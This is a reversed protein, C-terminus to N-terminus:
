IRGNSRVFVEFRKLRAQQAEEELRLRFQVFRERARVPWSHPDAGYLDYPADPSLAEDGLPASWPESGWTFSGWITQGSEAPHGRRLYAKIKPNQSSHTPVLQYSARIKTVTNENLPGTAYARLVQEWVIPSGDADSAALPGPDLWSLNQVRGAYDAGILQPQPSTPEKHVALAACRAAVGQLRSWPKRDSSLKCVLTDVVNLGNLIPLFYHSRHVTALGPRYGLAVYEQYLPDIAASLRQFPAPAESTVGLSLQWVADVAPVILGGQWAAIGANGWLVIDRSYQDMRHQVNGDADTLDFAMNSIIWIGDTTFVAAADRLGELGIIQVGGPVQHFDNAGFTGPTAIDSFDIRDGSAALLRNAVVAYFPAVKAAVGITTGDYTAGGPLYLVGDMAAARAPAALGAAAIQTFMGNSGLIALRSENAVVTRQGGTLWGDWMFTLPSNPPLNEVSRYTSGGRRFTGGREDYFGNIEDYLGSEPIVEPEVARVMGASFDDQVTRDLGLTPM